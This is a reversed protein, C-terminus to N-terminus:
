CEKFVLQMNVSRVGGAMPRGSTGSGARAQTFSVATDQTLRIAGTLSHSVTHMQVLKRQIVGVVRNLTLALQSANFPAIRSSCKM